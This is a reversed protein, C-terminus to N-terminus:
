VEPVSPRSRRLSPRQARPSTAFGRAPEALGAARPVAPGQQFCPSSV